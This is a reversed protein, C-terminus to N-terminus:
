VRWTPTESLSKKSLRNNGQTTFISYRLTNLSLEKVHELLIYILQIKHHILEYCQKQAQTSVLKILRGSRGQWRWLHLSWFIVWVQEDRAITPAWEGTRMGKHHTKGCRYWWSWIMDGKTHHGKRRRELIIWWTGNGGKFM